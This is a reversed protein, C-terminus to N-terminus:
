FLKDILIDYWIEWIIFDAAISIVSLIIGGNEM